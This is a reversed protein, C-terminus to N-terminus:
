LSCYDPFLSPLGNQYPEPTVGYPHDKLFKWGPALLDVPVTHGGGHNCMFAFHDNDILDNFYATSTDQFNIYVVDDAGGHVIMAAFKNNPDQYDPAYYIIGGSYSVVSAIYDSRRYSMQTTMLGGDSFGAAHIRCTDVGIQEIACALIEDAADLHGNDWNVAVSGGSATEDAYMAVIMGGRALVELTGEVGLGWIVDYPHGGLGHWAFILPGKKNPDPNEEVFIETKKGRFTLPNSTTEDVYTMAITPCAETPVPMSTPASDCFYEYDDYGGTGGNGGTGGDGGTGGSGGSGGAGGSGSEGGSGGTDAAGGSGSSADNDQQGSTNADDSATAADKSDADTEQGVSEGSDQTEEFAADTNAGAADVDDEEETDQEADDGSNAGGSADLPKQDTIGSNASGPRVRDQLGNDSETTVDDGGSVGCKCATFRNGDDLCVKEGKKDGPCTCSVTEGPSCEEEEDMELSSNGGCRVAISQVVLLAALYWIRYSMGVLERNVWSFLMAKLLLCPVM